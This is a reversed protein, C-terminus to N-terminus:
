IFRLTNEIQKLIRASAGWVIQSQYEFTYMGDVPNHNPDTDKAITKLLSDVPIHFITEVESNSVLQPIEDLICVFPLILFGSNMTHVPSLQGVVQNKSIKLGIEESTERLATELLDFDTVDLKGGPFSIEGAHFKMSKPK